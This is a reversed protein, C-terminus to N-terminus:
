SCGWRVFVTVGTRFISSTSTPHWQLCDWHFKFRLKSNRLKQFSYGFSLSMKAIFEMSTIWCFTAFIGNELQWFQTIFLIVRLKKSEMYFFFSEFKGSDPNDAYVFTPKEVFYKPRYYKTDNNIECIQGALNYNLSQCGAQTTCSMYCSVLRDAFFSKYVHAVLVFFYESLTDKRCPKGAWQTAPLLMLSAIISWTAISESCTNILVPVTKLNAHLIQM